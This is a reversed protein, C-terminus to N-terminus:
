FFYHITIFFRCDKTYVMSLLYGSNDFVCVTHVDFLPQIFLNLTGM